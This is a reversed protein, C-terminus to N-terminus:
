IIVDGRQPTTPEAIMSLDSFRTSKRAFYLKAVGTPGNRNKAIIFKAINTHASTDQQYMDERHIFAVVDADQEIAGSDRLDSLVPEHGARNEVQRNMQTPTLATCDFERAILKLNRSHDAVEQERSRGRINEENRLLGIHDTAFLSIQKGKKLLMANVRRLEIRITRTTVFPSDNIFLPAEDLREKVERVARWEAETLRGDRFAYTDINAEACVIRDAIEEKSMELSFLLAPNDYVVAANYLIRLTIATKGASPRAALVIHQSPRFGKLRKDVEVLGTPIGDIVSPDSARLRARDISEGVEAAMTTASIASTGSRIKYIRQEAEEILESADRDGELAESSIANCERILTRLESNSKILKAYEDLSTIHPLGLTLNAIVSVGGFADVSGDKKMEAIILIPDIPKSQDFLSVMAAYVRRNLPSYYDGPNLVGILQTILSNDVLVSGLTVREAEECNPLSRELPQQSRQPTM